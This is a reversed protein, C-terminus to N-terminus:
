LFVVPVTVYVKVYNYTLSHHYLEICRLLDMDMDMDWGHRPKTAEKEGKHEGYRVM